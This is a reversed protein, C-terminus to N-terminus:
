SIIDTFRAALQLFRLASSTGSFESRDVTRFNAASGCHVPSQVVLSPRGSEQFVSVFSYQYRSSFEAVARKGLFQSITTQNSSTEFMEQYLRTSIENLPM